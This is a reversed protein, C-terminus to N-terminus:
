LIGVRAFKSIKDVFGRDHDAYMVFMIMLAGKFDALKPPEDYGDTFVFVISSKLEKEDLEALASKLSTGGGGKTSIKKHSRDVQVKSKLEIDYTYVTFTYEFECSLAYIENICDNLDQDSVSGSVDVLAIARRPVLRNKQGPFTDYRRSPRKWSDERKLASNIAFTYKIQEMVKLKRRQRKNAEVTRELWGPMDGRDKLTRILRDMANEINNMVEVPVDECPKIDKGTVTKDLGYTPDTCSGSDHNSGSENSASETSENGAGTKNSCGTKGATNTGNGPKTQAYLEVSNKELLKALEDYYEECTRTNFVSDPAYLLTGQSVFNRQILKAPDVPTLKRRKMLVSFEGVMHNILADMVINRLRENKRKPDPIIHKLMYHLLEHKGVGRIFAETEEKDMQLGQAIQLLNEINVKIVVKNDFVGVSATPVEDSEEVKVDLLAMLYPYEASMSEGLKHPVSGITKILEIM